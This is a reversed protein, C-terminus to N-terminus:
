ISGEGIGIERIYGRRVYDGLQAEVKKRDAVKEVHYPTRFGMDGLEVWGVEESRVELEKM